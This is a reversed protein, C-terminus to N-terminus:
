ESIRVCPSAIVTIRFWQRQADAGVGGDEGQHAAHEELREDVAVLVPEDVDALAGQAGAVVVRREGHGFDLIQAGANFGQAREALERGELEGHDAQALRAYNLRADDAAVEEFDHTEVRDEAPEDSRLVVTGFSGTDDNEGITEPRGSKPFIRADHAFGKAEAPAGHAISGGGDDADEFGGDGIGLIGFDHGVDDGARVVERCGHDSAAEV